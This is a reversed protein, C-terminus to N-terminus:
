SLLEDLTFMWGRRRAARRRARVVNEHMRALQEPSLGRGMIGVRREGSHRAEILRKERLEALREVTLDTPGFLRNVLELTREFGLREDSTLRITSM